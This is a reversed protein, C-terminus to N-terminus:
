TKEKNDLFEIKFEGLIEIKFNKFGYKLIANYFVSCNKYGNGNNKAREKLSKTTQGIYNKNSPSIYRYIFGHGQKPKRIFDKM